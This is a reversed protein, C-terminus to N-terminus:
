RGFASWCRTSSPSTGPPCAPMPRLGGPATPCCRSRRPDGARGYLFRLGRELNDPQVLVALSTLQDVPIGSGVLASALTICVIRHQDVTGPALARRSPGLFPDPQGLSTLYGTIQERLSAPLQDDRLWYPTRKPPVPALRQQPWGPVTEVARNWAARTIRVVKEAEILMAEDTLYAAFQRAQVAEM